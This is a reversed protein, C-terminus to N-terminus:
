LVWGAIGQTAPFRVERLRPEHGPRRDDAVTFYLEQRAEDLLLISVGEVELRAAVRRIAQRMLDNLDHVPFPAEVEPRGRPTSGLEVFPFTLADAAPPPNPAGAQAAQAFARLARLVAPRLQPHALAAQLDHYAT